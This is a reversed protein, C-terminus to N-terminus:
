YKPFNERLRVSVIYIATFRLGIWTIYFINSVFDLINWLDNLYEFFGDTYLSKM